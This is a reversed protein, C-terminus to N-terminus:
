DEERDSDGGSGVATGEDEAAGPSEEAESLAPEGDEPARDQALGHGVEQPLQQM